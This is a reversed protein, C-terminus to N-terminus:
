LGAREGASARKVYTSTVDPLHESLWAAMAEEERLNQELPPIASQHGTEKAVQILSKYAAIEFNEFAFNAMSNKLVEDQMVTHAAAALSGTFSLANDKLMSRKENMSGLIDDLRKIQQNTEEIHRKLRNLVDPYNELREVQPNMISLAENEMAHANKLGTIFISDATEKDTMNAEVSFPNM